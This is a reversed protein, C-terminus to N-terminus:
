TAAGPNGVQGGGGRAVPKTGKIMLLLGQRAAFRSILPRPWLARAVKLIPGRHRQGAGGLLLDGHSLVVETRVNVAGEFLAAGQAPTFVRTGPSELYKAYIEDLSIWPRGRLLAYRLWLMYGVFSHRHYIMVAFSGGPRLVRMIERAAKETNPTHHIVGWSWIIDFSDDAFPMAEADAVRLDSSFGKLALRRRTHEIARPTICIGTLKAGARAFMEHDAGLGVGIELVEKGKAAEFRAFREIHPELKLREAAQRDYDASENGALFLEEGCAAADWFEKVDDKVSVAKM